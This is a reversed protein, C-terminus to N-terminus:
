LFCLGWGFEFLYGVLIGQYVANEFTYVEVFDAEGLNVQKQIEEKTLENILILEKRITKVTKHGNFLTNKIYHLEIVAM